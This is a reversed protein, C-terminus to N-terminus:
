GMFTPLSFIALWASEPLIPTCSCCCGFRHDASHTSPLLCFCLWVFLIFIHLLFLLSFAVFTAIDHFAWQLPKSCKKNLMCVITPKCFLVETQGRRDTQGLYAHVKIRRKLPKSTFLRASIWVADTAYCADDTAKCLRGHYPYLLSADSFGHHPGGGATGHGVRSEIEWEAGKNGGSNQCKRVEAHLSGSWYM